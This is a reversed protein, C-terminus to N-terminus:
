ADANETAPEGDDDDRKCDPIVFVRVRDPRNTQFFDDDDIMTERDGTMAQEAATRETEFESSNEHFGSAFDREEADQPVKFWIAVEVAQPLRKRMLSDFSDVWSEGDFYRFQLRGVVGELSSFQSEAGRDASDGGAAARRRGEIRRADSDFRYEALQLDGFVDPDEPGRTALSASVGRTLLRLNFSEGKV